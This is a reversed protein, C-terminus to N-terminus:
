GTSVSIEYTPDPTGQRPSLRGLRMCLLRLEEYTIQGCVEYPAPSGGATTVFLAEAVQAQTLGRNKRAEALRYALETM